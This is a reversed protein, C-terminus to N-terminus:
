SSGGGASESGLGSQAVVGGGGSRENTRQRDTANPEMTGAARRCMRTPVSLRPCAFLSRPAICCSSARLQLQLEVPLRAGALVRNLSAVAPCVAATTTTVLDPSALHHAAMCCGLESCCLCATHITFSGADSLSLSPRSGGRALSCLRPSDQRNLAEGCIGTVFTSRWRSPSFCM